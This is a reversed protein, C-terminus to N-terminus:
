GTLSLLDSLGAVAPAYLISEGLGGVELLEEHVGPGQVEVGDEPSGEDPGLVSVENVHFTSPQFRFKQLRFFKVSMTLGSKTNKDSICVNLESRGCM